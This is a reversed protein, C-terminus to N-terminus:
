TVKAMWLKRLEEIMSDNWKVMVVSGDVLPITNTGGGGGASSSTNIFRNGRVSPLSVLTRHIYSGVVTRMWCVYIPSSKRLLMRM